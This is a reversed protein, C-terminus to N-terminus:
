ARRKPAQAMPPTPHDKPQPTYSSLCHIAALQWATSRPTLQTSMAAM